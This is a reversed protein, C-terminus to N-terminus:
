VMLEKKEKLVFYLAAILGDGITAYFRALLSLTIAQEAPIYASAFLVIAAERVGIGSPVFIALIGIIGAIIYIAGYALYHQPPIGLLSIAILVFAAGNIVRPAMFELLFRINDRTTLLEQKPMNKKGAVRLLINLSFAFFGPILITIFVPIAVFIPLLLGRGESFKEGVVSTLIPLALTVSALVLFLNEYIFSATVKKGDIGHKKAWTLKSIFSGAQGPIYKMLWSMLQVKIAQKPAINKGTIKALVRGWVIGSVVVSLVFLVLAVFVFGDPTLDVGSLNNWNRKLTKAFLFAIIVIVAWGLFRTLYSFRQKM